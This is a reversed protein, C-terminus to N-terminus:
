FLLALVFQHTSDYESIILHCENAAHSLTLSDVELTMRIFIFIHTHAYVLWDECTDCGIMFVGDQYATQCLCYLQTFGECLRVDKIDALVPHKGEQTEKLLSRFFTPGQKTDMAWHLRKIWEEVRSCESQIKLTHPSSSM